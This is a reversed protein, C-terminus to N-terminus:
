LCSITCSYHGNTHVRTCFMEIDVSVCAHARTNVWGWVHGGLGVCVCVLVLVFCVCVVRCMRVVAVAFDQLIPEKRMEM